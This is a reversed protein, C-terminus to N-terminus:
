GLKWHKTAEAMDKAALLTVAGFEPGTRVINNHFRVDRSLPVTDKAAPILRWFGIPYSLNDFLNNAILLKALPRDEDPPNFVRFAISRPAHIMNHRIVMEGARQLNFFVATGEDAWNM